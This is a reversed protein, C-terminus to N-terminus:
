DYNKTTKAKTTFGKRSIYERVTVVSLLFGYTWFWWFSEFGWCHCIHVLKVCYLRFIFQDIFLLEGIGAAALDLAHTQSRESAPTTPEFGAPPMSIQREDTSHTTLYLDRRRDSWEDLPTRGVRTHRLTIKFGRYYPRPGSPSNRWPVFYVFIWDTGRLLCM